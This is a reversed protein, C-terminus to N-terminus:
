AVEYIDLLRKIESDYMHNGGDDYRHEAAVRVEPWKLSEMLFLLLYISANAAGEGPYFSRSLATALEDREEPHAIIYDLVRQYHPRREVFNRASATDREVEDCLKLFAEPM